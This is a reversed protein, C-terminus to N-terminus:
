APAVGRRRRGILAFAIGSGLLAAGGLSMAAIEQGTFPLSSPTRVVTVGQVSSGPVTAGPVTGGSSSSGGQPGSPPYTGGAAWAPTAAAGAAIVALAGAALARRGRM